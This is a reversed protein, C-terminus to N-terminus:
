DEFLSEMTLENEVIEASYKNHNIGYTTIMTLFVNKKSKTEQQFETVKNRLNCYYNKDITFITKSFKM